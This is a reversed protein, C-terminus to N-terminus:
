PRPQRRLIERRTLFDLFADTAALSGIVNPHSNIDSRRYEKKLVNNEDALVAFFDFVSFNELNTKDAYDVAYENKLWDNFRRGRAANEPTTKSPVLPPATVYIFKKEPYEAFVERLGDFAARYNALTREPDYADGTDGGDAGIDSNPYCSKFMIIDNEYRDSRHGESYADFWIIDDMDDRFKGPWHHIHTEQGVESGRTASQVGIGMAILRAKLEGELLWNRGVSHHIFVLRTHCHQNIQGLIRDSVELRGQTRGLVQSMARYKYALVLGAVNALLSIVLLITVIRM